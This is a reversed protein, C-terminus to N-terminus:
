EARRNWAAVAGEKTWFLNTKIEVGWPGECEHMAQYTGNWEDITPKEGCWPCPRLTARTPELKTSTADSM